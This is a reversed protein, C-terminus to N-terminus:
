CGCQARLIYGKQSNRTLTSLLTFRICSPDLSTAFWNYL